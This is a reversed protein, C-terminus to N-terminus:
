CICILGPLRTPAQSAGAPGTAMALVEPLYAPQPHPSTPGLGGRACAGTSAELTPGLSGPDAQGM